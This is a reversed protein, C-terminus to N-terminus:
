QFVGDKPREPRREGPPRIDTADLGKGKNALKIVFASFTDTSHFRVHDIWRLPGSRTNARDNDITVDVVASGDKRRIVMQTIIGTKIRTPDAVVTFADADLLALWLWAKRGRWTRKDRVVQRLLTEDIDHGHLRIVVPEGMSLDETVDSVDVYPGIPDFTQGDLAGDGTGTPAFIGPGTWATVPDDLIDLRGILVPRIETAQLATQMSATLSRSM